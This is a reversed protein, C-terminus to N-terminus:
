VSQDMPRVGWSRLIPGLREETAALPNAREADFALDYYQQHDAQAHPTIREFQLWTNDHHIARAYAALM